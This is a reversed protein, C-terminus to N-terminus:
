RNLRYHSEEVVVQVDRSFGTYARSVVYKGMLRDTTPQNSLVNSWGNDDSKKRCKKESNMTFTSSGSMIDLTGTRQRVGEIVPKLKEWYVDVPFLQYILRADVAKRQVLVGLQEYFNCVVLVAM